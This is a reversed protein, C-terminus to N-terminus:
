HHGHKQRLGWGKGQAEQADELDGVGAPDWGPRQTERSKGRRGTEVESAARSGKMESRLGWGDKSEVDEAEVACNM